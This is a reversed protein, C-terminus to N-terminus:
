LDTIHLGYFILDSFNNSISNLGKSVQDEQLDLPYNIANSVIMNVNHVLDSEADSSADYDWGYVMLPEEADVKYYKYGELLNNSLEFKVEELQHGIKYVRIKPEKTLYELKKSNWDYAVINWNSIKVSKEIEFYFHELKEKLENLTIANDNQILLERLKLKLHMHVIAAKDAQAVKYSLHYLKIADDDAHVYFDKFFLSNEQKHNFSISNELYLEYNEKKTSIDSLVKNAFGLDTTAAHGNAGGESSGNKENFFPSGEYKKERMKYIDLGKDIIDKMESNEYPKTVYKYISCKNIAKIIAQIDAFGTLIIRIIDPFEHLTQELLDTGTMEPMKQDTIIMHIDYQRLLKIATKGNNATFVNYYRSFVSDFVRLNSNEDDVYLINSFDDEIDDPVNFSAVSEDIM